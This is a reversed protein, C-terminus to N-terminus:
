EDGASISQLFIRCEELLVPITLRTQNFSAIKKDKFYLETVHSDPETLSFGYDAYDGLAADLLSQKGTYTPVSNKDLYPKIFAVWSHAPINVDGTNNMFHEQILYLVALKSHLILAERLKEDFNDM